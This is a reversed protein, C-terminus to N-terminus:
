FFNTILCVSILNATIIEVAKYDKTESTDDNEAYGIPFLIGELPSLFDVAQTIRSFDIPIKEFSIKISIIKVQFKIELNLKLPILDRM